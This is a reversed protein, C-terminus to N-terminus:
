IRPPCPGVPMDLGEWFNVFTGPFADAPFADASFAEKSLSVVDLAPHREFLIDRARQVSKRVMGTGEILVCILRGRHYFVADLEAFLPGGDDAAEALLIRAQPMPLFASFIWDNPTFIEAGEPALNDANDKLHRETFNLYSELFRRLPGSFNSVGHLIAERCLLQLDETKALELREDVTVDIWGLSNIRIDVGADPLVAYRGTLPAKDEESKALDALVIRPDSALGYVVFTAPDARTLFDLSPLGM